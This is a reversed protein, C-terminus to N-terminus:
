PLPAVVSDTHSLVGLSSGAPPVWGFTAAPLSSGGLRFSSFKLSMWCTFRDPYRSFFGRRIDHFLGTKADLDYQFGVQILSPQLRVPVQGAVRTVAVGNVFATSVSSTTKRRSEASKVEIFDGLDPDGSFFMLIPIFANGLLDTTQQRVAEGNPHSYDQLATMKQYHATSTQYVYVAKGDSLISVLLKSNVIEELRFKNPKEAIGRVVDVTGDPVNSQIRCTFTLHRADKLLVELRHLTETASTEPRPVHRSEACSRLPWSAIAMVTLLFLRRLSLRKLRVEGFYDAGKGTDGSLGHGRTM